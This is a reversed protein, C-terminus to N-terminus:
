WDNTKNNKHNEIQAKCFADFIEDDLDSPKLNWQYLRNDYCDITLIQFRVIVHEIEKWDLFRKRSTAPLHIGTEDINVYLMEKAAGEWYIAFLIVCCLVSYIVSPVNIHHYICFLAFVLILLFEAIRFLRNVKKQLLWKNKFITFGLLLFGLLVFGFSYIHPIFFSVIKVRDEPPFSSVMYQAFWVFGGTTMLIFSVILHLTIVQQRKTKEEALPLEFNM